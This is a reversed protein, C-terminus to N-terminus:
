FIRCKDHERYEQRVQELTDPDIEVPAVKWIKEAYTQIARDTSFPGMGAINHIVYKMWLERNSYLKEVEKQTEYYSSLDQLVFYHDARDEVSGGLLSNYINLLAQREKDNDALTGNRLAEVAKMILPNKSAVEFPNYHNSKRLNAVDTSSMGFRFPWWQDTVSERMEVNAGDDTGITLAGNISLKMNGTGSAEMGATSIQESLDAAPIIVEAKSVNYNDIFLVKLIANVKPDKQVKRSICHILQIVNKALEYSAAAKGAFIVCRKIRTPDPSELIEFYLMLCHLANMLQRKYEHFRKVQVDFLANVDIVPPAGVVEGSSNRMKVHHRVFDILRQKNRMKVQYLEAKTEPDDAFEKLRKIEDFHTIWGDGIKKTILSALGPNCLLLWRRQTVGNTVNIFRQPWMEYFDKFVTSKLIETHLAAVGNIAHSGAIALNAMRVQGQELISVRRVREEDGPYNVRVQKCLDDNLREIVKQQRPLLYEMLSVDWKELAEQLVTHNTYSTVQQTIEKAMNWPLDYIKILLHILEAIVLSPHTDNIQIRVKDAFDRFNDHSDLYRRIIDQLSASVLLFEQKLRVRKGADHWDSPYLVDTLTTNEAAQDLRGANYRQLQFNRPSEKTSWLRLTVVSFDQTKSYGVIPIDYPLAWVEEYDKLGFIQDGHINTAPTAIGCFKVAARRLDRRFEWPNESMLWLDPAEVQEGNWIQQEFIGYQYRLGYAMAPYHLTALSDLFCSALRGLGGNGLGPDFERLAIENLPRNLKHMMRMVLEQQCMNVINNTLIRGPMYELSLYYVTKEKNMALTKANASWNIMIEERLAYALARYFEDANAEHVTRGMTTILYHKVKQSLMEALYDLNPDM